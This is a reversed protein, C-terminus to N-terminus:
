TNKRNKKCFLSKLVNKPMECLLATVFLYVIVSFGLAFLTVFAPKSTFIHIKSVSREALFAAATSMLGAYLPKVFVERAACRANAAKYTLLLTAICIFLESAVTSIAAGTLTFRPIRILLINGCLKLAGGLIMILAVTRPKGLAQSITFCPLSLSVLVVAAGLIRLSPAAAAIEANRGSFLLSLINEALLSIGLGSPFAIMACLTMMKNLRSCVAKNDGKAFSETIGALASKGLMATLTPVLGAVAAAYIFNPLQQATLGGELLHSFTQPSKSVAAAACPNVTLMDIMGTLTTILAALSVPLSYRLLRRVTEGTADTVPDKQLMRPTIGDGKIKSRAMIYICAIGSSLSTGLVSAAAVYPLAILM